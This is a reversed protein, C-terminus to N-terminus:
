SLWSMAGKLDFAWQSSDGVLQMAKEHSRRMVICTACCAQHIYFAGLFVGGNISMPMLKQLTQM